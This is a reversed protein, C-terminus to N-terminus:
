TCLRLTPRNALEQANENIKRLLHSGPGTPSAFSIAIRGPRPHMTIFFGPPVIWHHFIWSGSDLNDFVWSSLAILLTLSRRIFM